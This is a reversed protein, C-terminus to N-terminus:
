DKKLTQDKDETEGTTEWTEGAERERLADELKKLKNWCENQLELLVMVLLLAPWTGWNVQKQCNAVLSDGRQPNDGRYEAHNKRM